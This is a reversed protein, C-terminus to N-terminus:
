VFTIMGLFFFGNIKNCSRSDVSLIVNIQHTFNKDPVTNDNSVGPVSLLQRWLSKMQSFRSMIQSRAALVEDMQAKHRAREGELTKEIEATVMEQSFIPQGQNQSRPQSTTHYSHMSGRMPWINPGVQQVRCAYKPKNGLAQTYADDHTWRITRQTVSSSEAPDILILESMREQM